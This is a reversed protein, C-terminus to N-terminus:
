CAAGGIEKTEKTRKRRELSLRLRDRLFLFFRFFNFERISLGGFAVFCVFSIRTM